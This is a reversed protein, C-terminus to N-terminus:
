AAKTKAKEVIKSFGDMDHIAIESLMKRDLEIGVAAIGHIFKSYSIQNLKCAASLRVIWLSRMNRKKRRRDRYSCAMARKITETATRILKSRGGRFGKARKLIKKRRQKSAPNNTARPM